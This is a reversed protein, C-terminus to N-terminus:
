RGCGGLRAAGQRTTRRWSEAAYAVQLTVLLPIEALRLFANHRSDAWDSIRALRSDARRRRHM